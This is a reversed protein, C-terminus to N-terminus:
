TLLWSDWLRAARHLTPWHISYSATGTLDPEDDVDFISLSDVKSPVIQLFCDQEHANRGGCLACDHRTPAGSANKQNTATHCGKALRILLNWQLTATRITIASFPLSSPFQGQSNRLAWGGLRLRLECLRCFCDLVLFFPVTSPM